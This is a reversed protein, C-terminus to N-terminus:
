TQYEMPEIDVKLFYGNPANELNQVNLWLPIGAAVPASFVHDQHSPPVSQNDFVSFKVPLKLPQVSRQNSNIVGSVSIDGLQYSIWFKVSWNQNKFFNSHAVTFVCQQGQALEFKWHQQSGREIQYYGSNNLTIINTMVM